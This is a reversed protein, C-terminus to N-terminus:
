TPRQQKQKPRRLKRGPWTARATEDVPRCSWALGGVGLTSRCRGRDPVFIPNDVIRPLHCRCTAPVERPGGGSSGCTHPISHPSKCQINSLRAKSAKRGDQRMQTLRKMTLEELRHAPADDRERRSGGFGRGPRKVWGSGRRGDQRPGAYRRQPSATPWAGRVHMVPYKYMAPLCPHVQARSRRRMLELQLTLMAARRVIM